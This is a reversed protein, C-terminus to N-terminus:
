KTERTVLAGTGRTMSEPRDMNVPLFTEVAILIDGRKLGEVYLDADTESFGENILTDSLSSTLKHELMASLKGALTGAAVVPGIEPATFAVINFGHSSNESSPGSRDMDRDRAVLSIAANDVGYTELVELSRQANQLDFLGVVINM